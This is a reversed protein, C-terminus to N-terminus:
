SGTKREHDYIVHESVILDIVGKILIVMIELIATGGFAM